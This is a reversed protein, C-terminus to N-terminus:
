GEGWERGEATAKLKEIEIQENVWSQAARCTALEIFDGVRCDAEDLVQMFTLAVKGKLHAEEQTSTDSLFLGSLIAMLGSRQKAIAQLEKIYEIEESM